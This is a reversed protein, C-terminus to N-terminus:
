IAVWGMTYTHAHIKVCIHTYIYPDKKECHNNDLVTHIHGQPQLRQMKSGRQIDCKRKDNSVYMSIDIYSFQTEFATHVTVYKNQIQFNIHNSKSNTLYFSNCAFYTITYNKFCNCGRCNRPTSGVKSENFVNSYTLLWKNYVFCWCHAM